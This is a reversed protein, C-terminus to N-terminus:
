RTLLGSRVEVQLSEFGASNYKRSVVALDIDIEALAICLIGNLFLCVGEL